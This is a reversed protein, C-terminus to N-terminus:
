TAGRTDWVQKSPNTQTQDHRACTQPPTCIPENPNTKEAFGRKQYRWIPFIPENPLSKQQIRTRKSVDADRQECGYRKHETRMSQAPTPM